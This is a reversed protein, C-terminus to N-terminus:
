ATTEEMQENSTEKFYQAVKKGSDIEIMRKAVPYGAKKLDNIRSALRFCRFKTLAEMSTLTKGQDLFMQIQKTQSEM